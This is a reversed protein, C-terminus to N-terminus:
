ERTNRCFTQYLIRSIFLRMFVLKNKDEMRQNISSALISQEVNKKTKESDIGLKQIASHINQNMQHLFQQITQKKEQFKRKIDSLIKDFLVTPVFDEDTLNVNDFDPKQDKINLKEALYLLRVKKLVKINEEFDKRPMKKSVIYEPIETFIFQNNQAKEQKVNDVFTQIVDFRSQFKKQLNNHLRELDAMELIQHSGEPLECLFDNIVKCEKYLHKFEDDFENFDAIINAIKQQNQGTSFLQKYKELEERLQVM